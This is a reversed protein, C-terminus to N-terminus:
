YVVQFKAPKENSSLITLTCFLSSDGHFYVRDELLQYAAAVVLMPTAVYGPEPGQVKTVIEYDPKTAIESEDDKIM